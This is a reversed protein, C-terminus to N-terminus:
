KQGRAIVSRARRGNRETTAPEFTVVDWGTETGGWCGLPVPTAVHIEGTTANLERARRRAETQSMPETMAQAKRLVVLRRARRLRPKPMASRAVLVGRM